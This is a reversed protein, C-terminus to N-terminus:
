GGRKKKCTFEGKVGASKLIDCIKTDRIRYYIRKGDRRSEILEWDDLKKLQISTTSQTRKVHPFIECVCKEGSLLFCIIKLRTPDALAKFIVQAEEM